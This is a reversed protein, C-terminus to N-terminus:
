GGATHHDPQEDRGLGYLAPGHCGRLHPLGDGAGPGLVREFKEKFDRKMLEELLEVLEKPETNHISHGAREFRHVELGPMQSQMDHLGGPPEWSCVTGPGAM